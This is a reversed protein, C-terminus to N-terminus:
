VKGLILKIGEETTTFTLKEDVIEQGDNTTSTEDNKLDSSSLSEDTVEDLVPAKKSTEKSTSPRGTIYYLSRSSHRSRLIYDCAVLVKETWFLSFM